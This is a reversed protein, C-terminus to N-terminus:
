FYKPAICRQCDTCINKGSIIYGTAANKMFYGTVM